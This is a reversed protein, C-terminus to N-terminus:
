ENTTKVEEDFPVMHNLSNTHDNWACNCVTCYGNSNMACCYKKDSNNGYGCGLHCNGLARDMKGACNLCKTVNGNFKVEKYAKRITTDIYNKNANIIAANEKVNKIEREVISINAIINSFAIKTVYALSEM